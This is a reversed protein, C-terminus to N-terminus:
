SPPTATISLFCHRQLREKLTVAAEYTASMSNRSAQTNLTAQDGEDDIVLTPVNCLIPDSFISAIKNIRVKGKLGVIVVKREEQIFQKISSPNLISENQNTALIVM